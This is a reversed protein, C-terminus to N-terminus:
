YLGLILLSVISIATLNDRLSTSVIQVLDTCVCSEQYDCTQLHLIQKTSKFFITISLSPYIVPLVARKILLQGIALYCEPPQLGPCARAFGVYRLRHALMTCNSSPEAPLFLGSRLASRAVPCGPCLCAYRSACTPRMGCCTRM